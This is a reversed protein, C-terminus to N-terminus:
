PHLLCVKPILFRSPDPLERSEAISKQNSPKGTHVVKLKKKKKNKAVRMLFHFMPKEQDMELHQWQLDYLPGPLENLIRQNQHLDFLRDVSCRHEGPGSM